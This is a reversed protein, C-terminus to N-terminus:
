IGEENNGSDSAKNEGKDGKVQIKQLLRELRDGVM